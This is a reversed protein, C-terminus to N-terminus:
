VYRHRSEHQYCSPGVEHHDGPQFAELSHGQSVEECTPVQGLNARKMVIAAPIRM